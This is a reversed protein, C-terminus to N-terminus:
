CRAWNAQPARCFCAGCPKASSGQAGQLLQHTAHAERRSRWSLPLSCVKDETRLTGLPWAGSVRKARALKMTQSRRATEVCFKRELSSGSECNFRMVAPGGAHLLRPPRCPM